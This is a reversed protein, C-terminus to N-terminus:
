VRTCANLSGNVLAFGKEKKESSKGVQSCIIANTFDAAVTFTKSISATCWCRRLSSSRLCIGLCTRTYIYTHIVCMCRITFNRSGRRSIPTTLSGLSVQGGKKKKGGSSYQEAAKTKVAPSLQVLALQLRKIRM